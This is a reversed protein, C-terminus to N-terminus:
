NRLSETRKYSASYVIPKESRDLQITTFVTLGDGGDSLQFKASRTGTEGRARTHLVQGDMWRSLLFKKGDKSRFEVERKDLSTTWGISEDSRITISAAERRLEVFPFITAAKRMKGMAIKRLPAPFASAVERVSLDREAEAAEADVLEFRGSYGLLGADEAAM